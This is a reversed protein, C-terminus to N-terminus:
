NLNNNFEFEFSELSYSVFLFGWLWCFDKPLIKNVCFLHSSIELLRCCLLSMLSKFNGPPVPLGSVMKKMSFKMQLETVCSSLSDFRSWFHWLIGVDLGDSLLLTPPVVIKVKNYVQSLSLSSCATSFFSSTINSPM